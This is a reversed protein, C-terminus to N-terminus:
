GRGGVKAAAHAVARGVGTLVPRLDDAAALDDGQGRRLLDGIPGLADRRRVTVLESSGDGRALVSGIWLLELDLNRSTVGTRYSTDLGGACVEADGTHVGLLGRPVDCGARVALPLSGWLRGNVEMLATGAPGVKFEVMAAGTWGMAGLLAIAPDLLESTPAVTERRASAGGSVPVEHVRRHAVALLPRGEALVMGVGHGVGPHHAQAVLRQPSADIAEVVDTETWAYRVPGKALRGDPGVIRSRDPKLVVPTGLRDLLGVADAPDYLIESAAQAIGLSDALRVTAVKSAATALAEDSATAVICGDPLEPRHTVLPVIVDDTVPVIVDIRHREALRALGTATARTSTTFPSPYSASAECYRSAAGTPHSVASAAVVHHGARGLSRIVALASAREADTVLIRQGSM